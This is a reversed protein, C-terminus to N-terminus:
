TFCVYYSILVHKLSSYEHVYCFRVVLKPFTHLSDVSALDMINNGGSAHLSYALLGSVSILCEFNLLCLTFMTLINGLLLCRLNKFPLYSGEPSENNSLVEHMKNNGAYFIHNLNNKNM